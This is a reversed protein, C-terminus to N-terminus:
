GILNERLTEFFVLFRQPHDTSVTSLIHTGYHARQFLLFPLFSPFSFYLVRPPSLM